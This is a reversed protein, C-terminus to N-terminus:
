TGHCEANHSYASYCDSYYGDARYCDAYHCVADANFTMISHTM